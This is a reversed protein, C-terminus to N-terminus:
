SATFSVMRMVPLGTTICPVFLICPSVMSIRELSSLRTMTLATFAYRAPLSREESSSSADPTPEVMIVAPLASNLGSSFIVSELFTTMSSPDALIVQESISIKRWFSAEFENKVALLCVFFSSASSSAILEFVVYRLDDAGAVDHVASLCISLFLDDQGALRVVIGEVLHDEHGDGVSGRLALDGVLGVGLDFARESLLSRSGAGADEFLIRDQHLPVVPDGTIGDCDM